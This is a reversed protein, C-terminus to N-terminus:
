DSSGGAYVYSLVSTVMVSYQENISRVTFFKYKSAMLQIWQVIDAHDDSSMLHAFFVSRKSPLISDVVVCTDDVRDFLQRLIVSTKPSRNIDAFIPIRESLIFLDNLSCPLVLAGMDRLEGILEISGYQRQPEIGTMSCLLQNLHVEHLAKLNSAM